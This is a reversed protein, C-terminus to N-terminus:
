FKLVERVEPLTSFLFFIALYFLLTTIKSGSYLKLASGLSRKPLVSFGRLNVTSYIEDLVLHGLYGAVVAVGLYVREATELSFLELVWATILGFIIAAPISHFMGRHETFREFIFGAGFRILAFVLLPILALSMWDRHGDQYYQYFVLGALTVALLGFIIQFPIGGDLDLDPIFSGILVALFVLFILEAGSFFSYVLAFVVFAIAVITGWGIHTRFNAM